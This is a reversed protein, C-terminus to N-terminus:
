MIKLNEKLTGLWSRLHNASIRSDGSRVSLFFLRLFEALSVKESNWAARLLLPLKIKENTSSGITTSVDEEETLSETDPINLARHKTADLFGFAERNYEALMEEGHLFKIRKKLSETIEKRADPNAILDSVKNIYEAEDRPNEAVGEFEIVRRGTMLKFPSYAFVPCAGSLVAEVPSMGGGEPFSDLYIDAAPFYSSADMIYGLFKIRHHASLKDEEKVGIIFARAAPNRELIKELTTFFNREGIPKFKTARGMSFLAVDAEGIGLKRRAENRSFPSSAADTDAEIDMLFPVVVTKRASRRKRSIETGLPSYDIVLDTVTTGVGFLHDAHNLLAVPPCKEVAFAMVPVIDFPFHCLIIYDYDSSCALRRLWGAKARLDGTSPLVFIEGGTSNVAERVFDPVPTDKQNILCLSHIYAPFSKIWNRILRTHGGIEFVATAVHLVKKRNSNKRFDNKDANLEAPLSYNGLQKGIELIANEIRGDSFRGTHGELALFLAIRLWKLAKEHDGKDFYARGVKVLKEYLYNNKNLIKVAEDRLM